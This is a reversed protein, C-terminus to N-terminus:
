YLAIYETYLLTQHHGIYIRSVMGRPGLNAVDLPDNAEIFKFHPFIQFTKNELAM